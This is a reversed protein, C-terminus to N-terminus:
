EISKSHHLYCAVKRGNTQELSPKTSECIDMKEPCRPHFRCGSIEENDPNGEPLTVRDRNGDLTPISDTLARTYPHKPERIIRDTKGEEVIRGMYMVGITDSVMRVVTLNHSIYMLAFGYDRKLKDLLKILGGQVSVDLMSLPEDAVLFDPKLIIARAINVRQRQGGSLQGPYTELFEKPPSLGVDGLVGSVRKELEQKPYDHYNRLPESVIEYITQRPNLAEYPDQLIIQANRRFEKIENPSFESIDEGKFEITGGTKNQLNLITEGLTSKGSGSEGVLGYSEGKEISINVKDVAKIKESSKLIKDLISDSSNYYKKLGTTSIIPQHSDTAM